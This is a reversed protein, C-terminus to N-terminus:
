ILNGILYYLITFVSFFYLISVIGFQVKEFTSLSKKASCISNQPKFLKGQRVKLAYKTIVGVPCFYKCFFQSSFMSSIMLFPFIFWQVGNGQMSFIMSFPEYSSLTSNNNLLAVILAIWLLAGNVYQAYNKIRPYLGWKIGTLKTLFYQVAFFPCISYCYLNKRFIIIGGLVFTIFIWFLLGEALDPIEGMLIRTFFSISLSANWFFGLLLISAILTITKYIRKKLWFTLVISILFFVFIGWEYSAIHFKGNVIEPQTSFNNVALYHSSNKVAKAIAISSITAGSIAEIDHDIAFPEHTLKNEFQYFFSKKELKRIYTNTETHYLLVVNEVKGKLSILTAVLMKGGYGITVDAKLNLTDTQGYIKYLKDIADITEIKYEPFKQKILLVEDTNTNQKGIIFAIILSAVIVCWLVIKKVRSKMTFLQLIFRKKFLSM